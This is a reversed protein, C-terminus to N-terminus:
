ALVSTSPGWGAPGRLMLNLGRSGAFIDRPKLGFYHRVSHSFHTSDAYGASLATAVLSDRHTVFSMVGRARKWARLQRLTTGTEQRFLHTFRSSSLGLAAAYGDVGHKEAPDLAIKRTVRAIRPDMVRPHPLRDFVLADFPVVPQSDNRIARLGDRLRAIVLAQDAADIEAIFRDVDITEAELLIQIVHSDRSTIRHPQYPAVATLRSEETRGGRTLTFPTAISAYLIVAGFNRVAPRGLLGFYAIREPTILMLPAASIDAAAGAKQAVAM